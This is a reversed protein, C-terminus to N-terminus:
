LSGGRHENSGGGCDYGGWSRGYCWCQVFAEQPRKLPPVHGTYNALCAPGDFVQPHPQKSALYCKNCADGKGQLGGCGAAAAAEACTVPPPPPPAPQGTLSKYIASVLVDYHGPFHVGGPSQLKCSSYTHDPDGSTPPCVDMVAGYVDSTPIELKTTVGNAAANFAIVDANHREPGDTVDLPVPTTDVWLVRKARQKLLTAISTLEATFNAVTEQVFAALVSNATDDDGRQHNVRRWLVCSVLAFCPLVLAALWCCLSAAVCCPLLAALEGLRCPLRVAESTNLVSSGDPLRHRDLSHLGFNFLVVDWSATGLWAHTCLFGKSCPGANVPVHQCEYQPLLPFLVPSWGISISDGIVLLRPKSSNAPGPSGGDPGCSSSNDAACQCGKEGPACPGANKNRGLKGTCYTCTGRADPCQVDSQCPLGCVSPQADVVSPPPALLALWACCRLLRLSPTTVRM